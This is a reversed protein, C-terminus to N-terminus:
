LGHEGGARVLELSQRHINTLLARKSLDAKELVPMTLKETTNNQHIPQNKNRGFMGPRTPSGYTNVSAVQM